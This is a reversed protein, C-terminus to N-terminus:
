DIGIQGFENTALSSWEDGEDSESSELQRYYEITDRDLKRARQDAAGKRLWLEIIHSRNQKRKAAVTDILSLLDASLTISVKTKKASTM